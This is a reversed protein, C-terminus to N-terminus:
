TFHFQVVRGYDPLWGPDWDLGARRAPLSINDMPTVLDVHTRTM